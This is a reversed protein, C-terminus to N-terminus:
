CLGVFGKRSMGESGGSGRMDIPVCCCQGRNHARLLVQAVHMEQNGRMSFVVNVHTVLPGGLIAINYQVM